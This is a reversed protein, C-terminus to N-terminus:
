CKVTLLYPMVFFSLFGLVILLFLSLWAENEKDMVVGLLSLPWTAMRKTSVTFM